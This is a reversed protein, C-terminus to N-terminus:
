SSVARDLVATPAHSKVPEHAPKRPDAVYSVDDSKGTPLSMALVLCLQWTM